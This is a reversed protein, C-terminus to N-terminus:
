LKSACHSEVVKSSEALHALDEPLDLRKPDFNKYEYSIIECKIEHFAVALAMVQDKTVGTPKCARMSRLAKAYNHVETSVANVRKRMNDVTRLGSTTELRAGSM